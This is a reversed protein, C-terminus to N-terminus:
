ISYLRQSILESLKSFEESNVNILSSPVYHFDKHNLKKPKKYEKNVPLVSSYKDILSDEIEKLDIKSNFNNNHPNSSIKWYYFRFNKICDKINQNESCSLPNLLEDNQIAFKMRNYSSQSGNKSFLQELAHDKLSIFRNQFAEINEGLENRVYEFYKRSDVATIHGRMTITYLHKQWRTKAISGGHPNDKTGQYKGLYILCEGFKKHNFTIGYIGYGRINNKLIDAKLNMSSCLIPSQKRRFLTPKVSFVEDANFVSLLDDINKM